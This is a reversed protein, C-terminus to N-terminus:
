KFEKCPLVFGAAAVINQQSLHKKVGPVKLMKAVFIPM